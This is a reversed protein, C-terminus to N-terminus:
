EVQKRLAMMTIDRTAEGNVDYKEGVESTACDLYSERKEEADLPYITLKAGNIAAWDLDGSAPIAVSLRLNYDRMGKSYGKANGTRNMTKVVKRGTVVTVDVSTVDVEQGDVELVITGLYEELAM